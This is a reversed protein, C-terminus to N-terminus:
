DSVPVEYLIGDCQIRATALGEWQPNLGVARLADVAAAAIAVSSEPDGDTSSFGLYLTGTSLVGDVDQNTCYVYGAHGSDQAREHGFHAAEEKDYGEDFSFSISKEELATSLQRLALAHPSPASIRSRYEAVVIDIVDQLSEPRPEEGRLDELEDPDFDDELNTHIEDPSQGHCLLLSIDSTLGDSEYMGPSPPYPSDFMAHQTM